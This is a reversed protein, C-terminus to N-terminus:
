SRGEKELETLARRVLVKVLHRRYEASSRADSIPSVESHAADVAAAIGGAALAAEARVLRFPRPAVSAVALRTPGAGDRPRLAAVGVIALEMAQRRGQKLYVGQAGLSWAPFRLATVMEGPGLVTRGPGTFFEELPVSRLGEGSAIEVAAGMCIMPPATDAAPSANCINGGLTARTRLQYSGVTDISHALM